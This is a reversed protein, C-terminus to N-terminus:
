APFCESSTAVRDWSSQEGRKAQSVAGFSSCIEVDDRVIGFNHSNMPLRAAKNPRRFALLHAPAGGNTADTRSRGAPQIREHVIGIKM